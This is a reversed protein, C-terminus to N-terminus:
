RNVQELWDLVRAQFKRGFRNFDMPTELTVGPVPQSRRACTPSARTATTRRRSSCCRARHPWRWRRTSISRCGRKTDRRLVRAAADARAPALLPPDGRRRPRRHRAAASRVRVGVALAHVRADLAMTLLGVKAGLSYGMLSIRSADVVDLAALADIAARTDAVMKGM